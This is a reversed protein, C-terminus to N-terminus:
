DSPIPGDSRIRPSDTANELYCNGVRSGSGFGSPSGHPSQRDTSAVVGSVLTLLVRRTRGGHPLLRLVPCWCTPDSPPRRRLCTPSPNKDSGSRIIAEDEGRFLLVSIAVAERSSTEDISISSAISWSCAIIVADV